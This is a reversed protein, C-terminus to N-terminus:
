GRVSILVLFIPPPYLRGTRLNMNWKGLVGPVRLKKFGYPGIRAHLPIAKSYFMETHQGM